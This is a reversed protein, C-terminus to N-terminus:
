VDRWLVVVGPSPAGATQTQRKQPLGVGSGEVDLCGKVHASGTIADPDIVYSSPMISGRRCPRGLKRIGADEINKGANRDAHETHRCMLCLFERGDRNLKYTFGCRGCTQSTYAAPVRIVGGAMRYALLMVVVVM